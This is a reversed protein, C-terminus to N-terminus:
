AVAPLRASRCCGAADLPQGEARRSVSSSSCGARMQPFRGIRGQGPTFRWSGSPRRICREDPGVITFAITEDRHRVEQVRYGGIVLRLVVIGGFEASMVSM